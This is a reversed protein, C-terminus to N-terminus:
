KYARKLWGNLFKEQSKTRNAIMRYVGAAESRMAALLSDVDVINNILFITIDWDNEKESILSTTQYVSQLSREVIEKTQVPGFNVCMDFIKSAVKGDYVFDIDAIKWYGTYYM